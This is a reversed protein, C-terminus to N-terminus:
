LYRDLLDYFRNNVDESIKRTKDVTNVIDAWLSFFNDLVTSNDDLLTPKHYDVNKIVYRYREVARAVSEDWSCYIQNMANEGITHMYEFNDHIKVLLETLSESSEEILLANEGDTVDEAACSDKILVSGLGSAAAERVVIGNTDFTSPFLFLDCSSYINKLTDRDRIPGTFICKEFIGKEIAYDEIDQKDAGDGVFMMRYDIDMSSLNRLADLIIKIGKYWMMRGVFLFVPVGEPLLYEERIRAIHYSDSKGKPLDVGNSMVIYDGKYGLSKLNEGAGRSVVWVEDVAEINRILTNIATEQILRSNIARKIDIDFKTHYTLILPKKNTDRVIRALYTSAIPCHSHIIDIDKNSIRTLYDVDLPMGARYGVLKTTNLSPYRMVEFPYEDVVGPYDPTSVIAHGYKEEIISAYNVVTNAVGDILPPFSDNMLCVNIKENM